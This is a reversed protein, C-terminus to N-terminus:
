QSQLTLKVFYTNEDGGFEFGAGIQEALKSCTRLGIGNSEVKEGDHRIHNSIEIIIECAGGSISIKIPKAKDAYKYLNSFANDFIRVLSQPDTVISKGSLVSDDISSTDVNYGSEGILLVHESLMQGILTEADYRELEPTTNPNGFVLLYGFMDDSLKKLRLATSEAAKIYEQMQADGEASARMVDLYGLLVTLPTRIDHSMSTILESNANLAAKEKEYNEVMSSRMNEVNKALTAIEDSGSVSIVSATNGAAVANVDEGLDLIRGTVRKIYFLMISLLVAFAIVLTVINVVDYYLYETFEAFSAVAPGDTLEIVHMENAKAYELLEERSPYTVTVGGGTTPGDEKEGGTGLSGDVDNEGGDGPKDTGDGDDGSIADDSTFFIEGEKSILLYVYRNERVWTSIKSMDKLSVQNDTIFDQLDHLYNKEREKKNEESIYVTDIYALSLANLTFYVGLGILVAFVFVVLFRFRLSSLKKVLRSLARKIM